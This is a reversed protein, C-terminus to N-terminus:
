TPYKREEVDDSLVGDQLWGHYNHMNISPHASVKPPTGTRTWPKKSNSSPGDICWGGSPTKVYLSRGDPGKWSYWDAYWMSGIPCDELTCEKQEKGYLHIQHYFLQWENEPKYEYGCQCKTPWRPDSRDWQMPTTYIYGKEDTICPGDEIQVM